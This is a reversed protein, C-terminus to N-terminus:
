MSEPASIGLLTLGNRLVTQVGGVLMLRAQTLEPNSPDLVRYENYFGHFLGALEYLYHTLRHPERKEASNLIVEPYEALYRILQLSEPEGIHEALIEDIETQDIGQNEMERFISCCRAHAYQVYFVPNENAQTVALQLDFDLHSTNSHM